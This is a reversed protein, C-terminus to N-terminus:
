LQDRCSTDTLEGIGAPSAVPQRATGTHLQRDPSYPMATLGPHACLLLDSQAIQSLGPEM